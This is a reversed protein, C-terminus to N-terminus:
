EGQTFRYLGLAGSLMKEFVEDSDNKQGRRMARDLYKAIMEAPVRHRAKFGATFADNTASAFHKPTIVPSSASTNRRHQQPTTAPASTSPLAGDQTETKITIDPDHTFESQVVENLFAKLRMLRDVM